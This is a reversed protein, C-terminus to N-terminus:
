AGLDPAKPGSGGTPVSPQARSRKPPMGGFLGRRTIESPVFFLTAFVASDFLLLLACRDHESDPPATVHPREVCSPSTRFVFNAVRLWQLKAVFRVSPLSPLTLSVWWCRFFTILESPLCLSRVAERSIQVRKFHSRRRAYM